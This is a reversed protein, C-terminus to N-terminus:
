FGSISHLERALGFHGVNQLPSRAEEDLYRSAAWGIFRVDRKLSMEGGRLSSIEYAQIRLLSAARARTWSHPMQLVGTDFLHAIRGLATLPDSEQWSRLHGPHRLCQSRHRRLGRTSWGANETGIASNRACNQTRKSNTKLENKSAKVSELSTISNTGVIKVDKGSGEGAYPAFWGSKPMNTGKPRRVAFVPSFQTAYVDRRRKDRHIRQNAPHELPACAHPCFAGAPARWGANQARFASNEACNQTRKSNTKLENISPKVSDLSTTSNTEVIKIKELDRAPTHRSGVVASGVSHPKPWGPIGFQGNPYETQLISASASYSAVGPCSVLM